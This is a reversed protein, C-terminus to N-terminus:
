GTISKYARWEPSLDACQAIIAARDEPAVDAWPTVTTRITFVVAQSDPLKVFSQDECRVFFIADRALNVPAVAHPLHLTPTSALGWNSREFCRMPRLRNLFFDVQSSLHAAYDPVPAHVALIPKGAKDALRWRNPFCLVAGSLIYHANEPTLICIDQVYTQGLYALMDPPAIPLTFNDRAALYAALERLAPEAVPMLALVDNPQRAILDARLALTPGDEPRRQLWTDLKASKIGITAPHDISV